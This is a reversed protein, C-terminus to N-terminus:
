NLGLSRLRKVLDSTTGTLFVNWESNIKTTLTAGDKKGYKTYYLTYVSKLLSNSLSYLELFLEEKTSALTFYGDLVDWSRDVLGSVYATTTPNTDQSPDPTTDKPTTESSSNDTTQKQRSIFYIIGIVAIGLLTFKIPNSVTAKTNLTDTNM